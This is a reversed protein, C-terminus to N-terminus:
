GNMKKTCCQVVNVQFSIDIRQGKLVRIYSFFYSQLEFM